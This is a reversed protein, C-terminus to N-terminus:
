VYTWEFYRYMLAEPTGSGAHCCSSSQLGAGWFFQHFNNLLSCKLKQVQPYLVFPSVNNSFIYQLRPLFLLDKINSGLSSGERSRAWYSPFKAKSQYILYSSNRRGVAGLLLATKRHSAPYWHKENQRRAIQHYPQIGPSHPHSTPGENKWEARVRPIPVSYQTHCWHSYQPVSQGQELKSTSIGHRSSRRSIGRRGSANLM